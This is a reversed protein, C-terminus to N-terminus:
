PPINKIILEVLWDSFNSTLFSFPFVRDMVLDFRINHPEDKFKELWKKERHKMAKFEV